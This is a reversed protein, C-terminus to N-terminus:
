KKKTSTKSSVLVKNVQRPTLNSTYRRGRGVDSLRHVGEAVCAAGLFDLCLGGNLHYTVM